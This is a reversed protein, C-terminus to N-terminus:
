TAASRARVRRLYAEPPMFALWILAASAFGAPGVVCAGLPSAAMDVGLELMVIAALSMAASTLMALGWLRVRDAVVPDALGLVARRKLMRHHLLSEVGSWALVSFGVITNGQWPGHATDAFALLGPGAAQWIMLCLEAIPIALWFVAAWPQTPRFVRRTFYALGGLGVLNCLMHVGLFACRVDPALQRAVQATTMLPYGIGASLFLGGGIALEPLARRRVGTVLLRLGIVLSALVFAGGGLGAVLEVM